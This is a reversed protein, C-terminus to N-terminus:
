LNEKSTLLDVTVSFALKVKIGKPRAVVIFIRTSTATAVVAHSQEVCDPGRCLILSRECVVCGSVSNSWFENETVSPSGM